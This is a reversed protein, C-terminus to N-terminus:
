RTSRRRAPRRPSGPLSRRRARPHRTRRWDRCRERGHVHSDHGTGSRRWDRGRGIRERQCSRVHRHRGPGCGDRRGPRRRVTVKAAPAPAAGTGAALGASANTGSSPATATWVGAYGDGSANAKIRETWTLSGGSVTMTVVANGDSAVLAVLIAGSPPTFAATTITTATKTTAVAPASADETITGSALVEMLAVGGGHTTPASAGVTVAGPTGTVATTKCSGYQCNNTADSINDILTTSAAATFATHGNADAIAGYVLSGAATTTISAQHAATGSESGTAPTGALSASTLVMVRLNLGNSTCGGQTATVTISM